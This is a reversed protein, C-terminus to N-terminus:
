ATKIGDADEMSSDSSQEVRKTEDLPIEDWSYGCKDCTIEVVERERDEIYRTRIYRVGFNATNNIASPDSTNFQSRRRGCKPCHLVSGFPPMDTERM